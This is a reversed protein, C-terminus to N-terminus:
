KEEFNFCAMIENCYNNFSAEIKDVKCDLGSFNFRLIMYKSKEETPNDLIWTDHFLKDFKQINNLDYYSHLMSLFMSKGFRRPRILFINNTKEIVPIYMTKDLYYKNQANVKDFAGVGYPIGKVKKM